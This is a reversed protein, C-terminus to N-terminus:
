SIADDSDILCYNPICLFHPIGAVMYMYIYTLVLGYAAVVLQQHDRENCMHHSACVEELLSASQHPTASLLPSSTSLLWM